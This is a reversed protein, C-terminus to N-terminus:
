YRFSLMAGFFNVDGGGVRELAAGAFLRSYVVDADFHEDIEYGVQVSLQEGTHALPPLGHVATVEANSEYIADRTSQRWLLIVGAELQLRGPRITLLPHVSYLNSPYIAPHPSFFTQNPFLPDFSAQRMGKADRAGSLADLRLGLRVIRLVGPLHHWFAASFGWAVYPVGNRAGVQILSHQIYEAGSATAGGLSGGFTTRQDGALRAEAPQSPRRRHLAFLDLSLARGPLIALRTYVGAVLDSANPRDDFWGRRLHPVSGVFGDFVARAFTVSARLLDLSLRVNAGDRTSFWRTTGLPLEQRGLRLRMHAQSWEVFALTVDGLDADPPQAPAPAGLAYFGGVQLVTRLQPLWRAELQLTNRLLMLSESRQLDPTSVSSVGLDPPDSYRYLLRHQGSVRLEVGRRAHVQANAMVVCAVVALQVLLRRGFRM